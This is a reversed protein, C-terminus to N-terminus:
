ILLSSHLTYLEPPDYRQPEFLSSTLPLFVAPELIPAHEVVAVPPAELSARAKVLMTPVETSSMAKCCGHTQNAPACASTGCCLMAQHDQSYAAMCDAFQLLLFTAVIFSLFLKKVLMKM